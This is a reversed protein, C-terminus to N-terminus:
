RALNVANASIRTSPRLCLGHGQLDLSRRPFPESNEDDTRANFRIVYHLQLFEEFDLRGGCRIYNTAVCLYSSLSLQIM